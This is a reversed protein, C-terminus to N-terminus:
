RPDASTRQQSISHIKRPYQQLLARFTLPRHLAAHVVLADDDGDGRRKRHQHEPGGAQEGKGPVVVDVGAHGAPDAHEARQGM